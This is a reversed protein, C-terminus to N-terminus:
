GWGDRDGRGEARKAGVVETEGVMQGTLGVWDGVETEGVRQLREQLDHIQGRLSRTAHERDKEKLEYHM